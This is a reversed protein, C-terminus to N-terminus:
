RLHARLERATLRSSPTAGPSKACHELPRAGQSFREIFSDSRVSAKDTLEKHDMLSEIRKGARVTGSLTIREIIYRCQAFGVREQNIELSAHATGQRDSWLHPLTETIPLDEGIAQGCMPWFRATLSQGDTARASGPQPLRQHYQRRPPPSRRCGTRAPDFPRVATACHTAIIWIALICVKIRCDATFANRVKAPLCYRKSDVRLSWEKFCRPNDSIRMSHQRLLTM